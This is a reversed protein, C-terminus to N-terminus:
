ESQSDKPKVFKVFPKPTNPSAVDEFTFSYKNQGEASTSAVTPSPRSYDTVTDDVFEPLGTWSLDKKPSLYLDAAAPPVVNYGVGTLDKIKSNLSVNNKKCDNSCFSNDFVKSETNAMLTFETPAEVDAVIAHDEGENEMYSIVWRTVTSASLKQNTLGQWMQDKYALRRELGRGSSTTDQSITAVSASATPFITSYTSVYAISGDENESSNKSSSIFAMNIIQMLWEPALSTLFKQNLDDKEVEVDMFQLQSVIVQLRNFTQELTESGEAKFNGYQQKLINKKRKKTAENGGFTKLIAAWLEKATKYKSFRLDNKKRQMDETTITVTRRSQENDKRTTTNDLDTNIPVKYSDGFEIVEWLAYHEHQLYQQIQFQWQEFKGTDLVPIQFSHSISSGNGKTFQVIFTFHSNFSIRKLDFNRGPESVVQHFSLDPNDDKVSPKEKVIIATCVEPLPKVNRRATAVIKVLLPFKYQGCCNAAAVYEAKTSSTAVITQKKCEWSIWRRGLFQCGGTTSKRDKNAGAYDSDSYAELVLPSEKPYWLGLKPQGKLYKFIKKVAELNSTTPTVQNRLCASVAFMIDPRLATLYMLSGIMSRYLHVNISSDSENKSKPKTAEYPTTTTRISGLDFKNLIEQVYKDQNIFIGDPRQQVQLGLFFTLEEVASMQFEGKMLAEFEDCWAKKTSGFIIGDVYVQILIIDKNNKKLFFTKDITGRKYGHKLLFTSLTAYWARPAQHLGYLAKVVKYVKKPHQPDMFGKPQTVYVEDDIRRYLFSIRFSSSNCKEQMADVWSPDELTQAVSRQEVESLFCAFLCHQLNTHNDRQQDYMSSIFASDGTTTQKVKSRTQVASTPDRIILSQPHITNIRTTEVPSVEVTSTPFRTTPEDDFFSDTFSSTHVPVNNTSIVISSSPVPISGTPVPLSGPLVLVNGAAVPICGPPVTKASAQSQFEAAVNAFGLGLSDTDSTARQARGKLRKLEKQFIEDASNLPSDDVEDGSTDVPNTVAEHTGASQNAQVHKYGLTDTLYDLDFYWEHGLGQVNPKVKLFRLNMTEEVRKNPVNYVRYVKNSVSYGVIYGEDAKGDFKGLHDSTNLITVHCGFPKFHSVSPINGTLLAYPTKNYPRTVSVRNLVYCAIRVADTWFMTPLKSDALMTRAAEILTRNKREAVRNQQPTRSNSYERNIGRPCLNNLNITYLNHKRPVRLVVMSEDLIKFDKSLVLCETDESGKFTVKGGQLEQFDDLREKNGTMSRSCSSDFIGEDEAASFLNELLFQHLCKQKGTPVPQPRGPPINVKSTRLLVVQPVFQNQHNVKNRCHVLGVGIGVTKNAMQKEYFDCDKILHTGYVIIPEQIPKGVNSEIEAENESTFVSSTSACSTSDNPKPELSKLSSDSLAFDNTNVESSKDSDDCSIFDNSVSKSDSSTSSKTGYSMQSEDLDSHDSLSTYDGSLPPPVAKMNDAKAFRHFLPKGEVDESESPVGMLAFEEADGATNAEKTDAGTILNYIKAAGEKIADETDCAAIMGFENSAIVGDSKGDHDTWDVLTDVTILAESEEEKKKNFRASEKKDFNIKRGAKNGSRHSRTKSNSPASYTTSSSYSSSDGYSMKKSASTASVFASHSPGSQSSSFTTYGKVDVELTKLKYYLDDFSLLELGGKTKLTLTVLSWSSPLARLFKLNIDEDEPKAKLQNLQSLIKQMRDYGKHLGEAKGIRFELFEQKLMSKRMKKSEANGGFRAKVAPVVYRGTPVVVRCTPVVYKLRKVERDMIDIPEEVFYLKDDFHLGDLSVALPEDAHCKKLNSVHFTNHVPKVEGGKGFRVVGKWPSVKLMFSDGIQFKMPKRKLDTYSKQRDHAAQMRQKIQIIKETTEQILEPGLLQAEGFDHLMDELTQITRESQENTEPHYATSMDLSTGLAEKLYMRALKEISDTERIPVFIASKTLRDVIVWITNYGQSSKPLKTVFDMTINDWKWEPIKPQVLLGLPRQHEAKVKTCTLCKSVYTAIDAKMNPWWYLRKMDQYMKDSSPHISYKSNYSEHMIVTRLHGYCPLWSRGNLCLTGDTHPELKKTRLKEPDKVNEVLMGIVNENKINEPKRAETNAKGPHYRIECDYDSLLELWHCQRMNLEKQDLIHQLSKHDRFVMCKTRLINKTNRRTRLYILIDDIFVIVFEDLCLKYVRNMVDMFITPANTLGFPMVQFEYHGHRSRFATKPIDEEHVRLQRYASRLDIKSYVSSGQLQDFLDDIWPLPYRNKVTLKNLERYDICMRFSGDKKKVFLVPEGWPSSSPRIFGKESLEKLKDSLEKMESSALRYPARAIPSAGPILDIQFEVIVVNSDQNKGVRGVAYVKELAIANGGQMGRNNNKFKPCDKRFHGQFGCEYCTPKQGTGNGRQNNAANVNTTSKCDRAIHGVKNCKYCTPACPGDHHYNCKPCLPKSGGYPKKEGSGATYARGTNQRKNQQQQQSQNSKFTDDVKRKNEAQCEAWSNNKKKMLKNAMKIVEQMTKPKLAVVSEHIVDSLGSVYREMKDEEEPFMRVCLLALKELKKMEGRPCYKDTMKKKMDVLTIAYAGNPGVTMVYSNWWTLASGLLTCTTFKIQNEVSSNSIRFVTEMKEFWQILEVVGETGKFNLPKCKMFDPYTCERTVRKTRRAGTGSNHCDDGNTYEPQAPVRATKFIQIRGLATTLQTQCSKLATLARIFQAQLKRYAARLERIEEQETEVTTQFRCDAVRLDIIETREAVVQTRLAIVRSRAADSADMSQIWAIHSARAEGEMLRATHAHLRMDRFLRNVRARQLAQDDQREEIMAYIMSTERDFTTSLEAVREMAAPTSGERREVTDVFRYLGDRVPERLRTATAASSEGLVYTGTHATCLRKQLPLDVEPIEEREDRGRLRATKYGLPASLPSPPSTPIAMLRAIDTDSPLSISTRPRISMRATVCYAHHPPPTATSEDTEFPRTEKASPAHDIAPLAVVISEAPALYEDEEEDGEIHIDEDEDVDSSEDEDDGEDGGNAPYDVPDEEPDDKPDEEPNDEPDSEDIYGPSETTPSSAAPLPQEEAPLIDDEAPMFEPVFEPSPPYKSGPMYDPSPPAQFDAVVYAYPDEPMVPPGDVPATKIFLHPYKKRFQDEREWTFEPGRRFNWRVKVLPIRSQKLQKVERDVIEISEEVFHLKDDFHLRDLLVALPKNSHCKKLNSVHFTNHVRILEQPLELKYSITGVKDLVKFPGVYRLNLKGGKGFRVVRSRCKRGYLAEFPEAKISAHYSNNYSFEVLSLHNVWGKGFDIVCACLKDELTQITRKNQENIKLHYATSMDLSTGLAKQLSKWFNSTFRPDRDCIISVPIGHRAVVEKLYMRALKEMPDIERM